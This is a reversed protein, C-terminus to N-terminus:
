IRFEIPQRSNWIILCHCLKKMFENIEDMEEEKCEKGTPKYNSKAHVINNRTSYLIEGIDSKINSITEQGITLYEADKFGFRKTYEKRLRIPLYEYLPLIDICNEIVTKALEKDRLSDTYKKSLSIISDLYQYDRKCISLADLKQDLKEYAERKSVIPSFYEILKYFYLFRINPNNIALADSYYDMAQSYPLLSEFKQYESNDDDGTLDIWSMFEGISISFGSRASISFLFSKIIKDEAEISLFNDDSYDLEVAFYSSCPKVGFTENYIGDRSAILGILMPNEVIKISINDKEYCCSPVAFNWHYADLSIIVQRIKGCRVSYDSEKVVDCLNDTYRLFEDILYGDELDDDPYCIYISDDGIKIPDDYDINFDRHLIELRRRIEKINRSNIKMISRRNRM